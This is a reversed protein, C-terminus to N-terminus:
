IIQSLLNEEEKKEINFIGRTEYFSFLLFSLFISICFNGKMYIKFQLNTKPIHNDLGTLVWVIEQGNLRFM